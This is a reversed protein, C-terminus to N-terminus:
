SARTVPRRVTVPAPAPTPTAVPAAVPSSQVNNNTNIVPTPLNAKAYLQTVSATLSDQYALEAQLTQNLVSLSQEIRQSSLYMDEKRVNYSDVATSNSILQNAFYFIISSLILGIVFLAIVTTKTM